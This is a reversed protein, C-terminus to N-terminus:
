WAPTAGFQQSGTAWAYRVVAACAASKQGAGPAGVANGFRAVVGYYTPYAGAGSNEASLEAASHCVNGAHGASPCTPMLFPYFGFAGPSSASGDNNYIPDLEVWHALGYWWHSPTIPSTASAGGSTACGTWACTPYGNCSANIGNTVCGTYLGGILSYENQLVSFMNIGSGSCGSGVPCGPGNLIGQLIPVYDSASARIGGAVMPQEYALHSKGNLGLGSVLAPGLTSVDQNALYQNGAVGGGSPYQPGAASFVLGAHNEEHGGDYIFVGATSPSSLASYAGANSGYLNNGCLSLCYNVSDNGSVGNNPLGIPSPTCSPTVYGSPYIPFMTGSSLNPSCTNTMQFQDGVAPTPNTDGCSAWNTSGVVAIQYTVGNTYLPYGANFNSVRLAFKSSGGATPTGPQAVCQTGTTQSGMNTYGSHFTLYTKDTSTIGSAGGRYQAVFSGYAWKSASAISMKSTAVIAANSQILQATGTGTCSAASSSTFTGGITVTGVYGCTHWNTTGVTLVKYTLGPANPAGTTSTGGVATAIYPASGTASVSVSVKRQLTDGIEVYFPEITPYSTAGITGGVCLANNNATAIAATVGNTSPSYQSQGSRYPLMIQASATGLFLLSLVFIRNM